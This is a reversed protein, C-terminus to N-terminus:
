VLNGDAGIVRHCPIIIAIKNKNNAMGVARFGKPSKVTKALDGYSRTEAFPIKQLGCWVKNQFETGNLLLPLDFETCKGAFYEDLQKICNKLCAAMTKSNEKKSKTFNLAVIHTDTSIIELTDIPSTYYYQYLMIM